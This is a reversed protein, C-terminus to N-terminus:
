RTERWQLSSFTQSSSATSNKFVVAFLNSDNSEINQSIYGQRADSVRNDSSSTLYSNAGQGGAPLFGAEIMNGSTFNIGTANTNYEVVSEANVSSWTGGIINSSSPLRWIEYFANQDLSCFSAKNLRVISRNPVGRYGTALRISLSPLTSSAGLTRLGSNRIAFDVGAESYGGESIVTSCIQDMSGSLSRDYNRLECRIPLNPNSIYVTSYNNSNYFEHAYIISGDHVFGCRVRGVGLWQYDTVFLQTKTIDLNFVSGNEANLKNISWESQPIIRESVGVGTASRLIFQLTGDGSQQFYIGNLNDFIGIRKNTGSVPLGFCFSSFALQSKGPMYHHYMRSQHIIYESIGTGVSLRVSAEAQKLIKSTGNGSSMLTLMETEEGYVHKYDGLTYPSSIRQRGFADFEAPSKKETIAESANTLDSEIRVISM